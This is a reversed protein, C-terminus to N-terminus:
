ARFHAIWLKQLLELDQIDQLREENFIRRVTDIEVEKKALTSLLQDMAVKRSTIEAKKKPIPELQGTFADIVEYADADKLAKVM